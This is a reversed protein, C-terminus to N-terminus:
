KRVLFTRLFYKHKHILCKLKNLQNPQLFVLLGLFTSACFTEWLMESMCICACERTVSLDQVNKQLDFSCPKRGM